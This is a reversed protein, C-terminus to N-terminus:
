FAGEFGAVNDELFSRLDWESRIFLKSGDEGMPGVHVNPM